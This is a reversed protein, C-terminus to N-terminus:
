TGPRVQVCRPLSRWVGDEKGNTKPPFNIKGKWGTKRRRRDLKGKASISSEKFLGRPIQIKAGKIAMSPLYFQNRVPKGVFGSCLQSRHKQYPAGGGGFFCLFFWLGQRNM